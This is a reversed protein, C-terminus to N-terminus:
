AFNERRQCGGLDRQAAGFRKSGSSLLIKGRQFARMEYWLQSSHPWAKYPTTSRLWFLPWHPDVLDSLYSPSTSPYLPISCNWSIYSHRHSHIILGVKLPFLSSTCKSTVAFVTIPLRSPTLSIVLHTIGRNLSPPNRFHINRSSWPM